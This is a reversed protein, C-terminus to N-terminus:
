LFKYIQGANLMRRYNETVEEGKKIDKLACDTVPDYNPNNSHNVFVLPWADDNPSQFLSGNVVSAWRDFILERIEPRIENFREYPVSYWKRTTEPKIYLKDGEKLDRLAFAGCGQIKSPAIKVRIENNLEDIQEKVTTSPPNTIHM